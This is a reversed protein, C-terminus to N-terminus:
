FKLTAIYKYISILIVFQVKSFEEKKKFRWYYYHPLLLIPHLIQILTCSPVIKKKKHIEDSKKNMTGNTTSRQISEFIVEKNLAKIKKQVGTGDIKTSHIKLRIFWGNESGSCHIIELTMTVSFPSSSPGIIKQCYM